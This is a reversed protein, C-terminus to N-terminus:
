WCFWSHDKGTYNCPTDCHLHRWAFCSYGAILWFFEAAFTTLPLLNVSFKVARVITIFLKNPNKKTHTCIKKPDKDLVNKSWRLMKQLIINCSHIGYTFATKAKSQNRGVRFQRFLGNHFHRQMKRADPLYAYSNIISIHPMLWHTIWRITFWTVIYQSWM